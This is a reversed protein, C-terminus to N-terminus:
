PWAGAGFGLGPQDSAQVARAGFLPTPFSDAPLPPWADLGAHRDLGCAWPPRGAPTPLALALHAAAVHAIPGDFLHSAIAGAGHRAARRALAMCPLLGGLAMPKLVVAELAECAALQDIWRTPEADHLSEDLGLPLGRLHHPGHSLLDRAAVPEEILAPTLPRLRELITALSAPPLCGNADLRLQLGRDRLTRVLAIENELNGPRGIKLKAVELGRDRLRDAAEIAARPEESTILGCLPVPDPVDGENVRPQTTDQCGDQRLLWWLPRELAQGALDLLATEIACRASPTVLPTLLAEIQRGLPGALDLDAPLTRSTWGQLDTTAAALTDPSYGPLPSAEGRGITNTVTHARVLVGQRTQWQQRANGASPMNGAHTQWDLHVIRVSAVRADYDHMTAPHPAKPFLAHQTLYATM